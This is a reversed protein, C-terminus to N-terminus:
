KRGSVSVSVSEKVSIGPIEIKGDTAKVLRKIAALDISRLMVGNIYAPVAHEDTVIIEWDKSTSVGKVKPASSGAYVSNSLQDAVLAEQMAAHATEADGATEAKAAEELKRAAEEQALRRMEAERQRAEEQKKLQYAGMAYKCTKEANKLPALIESEHDCVAKHADHAAKKMPGFYDTVIKQRTKITRAMEAAEEYEADNTIVLKKADSEILAGNALMQQETAIPGPEPVQEYIAESMETM